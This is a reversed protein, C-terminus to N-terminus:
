ATWRQQWRMATRGDMSTAMVGIMALIAMAAATVSEMATAGEMTTATAGVMAVTAKATATTGEMETARMAM